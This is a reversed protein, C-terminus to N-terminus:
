KGAWAADLQKALDEPTVQGTLLGQVGSGLKSYVNGNPWSFSPLPGSKKPDTILSSIEKFTDTTAAGNLTSELSVNGANQAFSDRVEKTTMAELVQLAADKHKTKANIAFADSPSAFVYTQSESDGPFATFTYSNKADAAMLGSSVASPGFMGLTQGSAVSQFIQPGGAGEAGDQMCGKKYMEQIVRFTDIWGKTGEFTTKGSARDQDWNPNESYVRSAAIELASFAANAPFAGPINILATGADRAKTCNALLDSYTKPITLGLKDYATKNVTLPVAVTDVPLGFLADGSYFLPKSSEPISATAWPQSALDLLYGKKAYLGLANTNGTGPSGYIIDPGNGAALQTTTVTGLQDSPYEVIQITINPHMQHIQDFLESYYKKGSDQSQIAATLTVPANPDSSSPSAPASCGSLASCAAAAVGIGAVLARLGATKQQTM